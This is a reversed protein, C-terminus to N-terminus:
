RCYGGELYVLADDGASKREVVPVESSRRFLAIWPRCVQHM